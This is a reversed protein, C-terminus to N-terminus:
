EARATMEADLRATLAKLGEELRQIAVGFAGKDAVVQALVSDVAGTRAIRRLPVDDAASGVDSPAPPALAAEIERASGALTELGTDAGIARAVEDVPALGDTGYTRELMRRVRLVLDERRFPKVIYDDTGVAFAQSISEEGSQATLMLVPLFATRVDS